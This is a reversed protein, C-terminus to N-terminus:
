GEISKGQVTCASRTGHLSIDIKKLVEIYNVDPQQHISVISTNPKSPQYLAPLNRVM